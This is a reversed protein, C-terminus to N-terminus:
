TPTVFVDIAVDEELGALRELTAPQLSSDHRGAAAIGHVLTALEFGWPLGLYRLGPGITLEPYEGPTTHEIVDLHM